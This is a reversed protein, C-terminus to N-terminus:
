ILDSEMKCFTHSDGKSLTDFANQWEASLNLLENVQSVRKKQDKQAELIKNSRLRSNAESPAELQRHEEYM